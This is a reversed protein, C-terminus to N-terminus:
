RTTETVAEATTAKLSPLLPSRPFRTEFAGLRARAEAARGASVLSKITLAEREEGLVSEPFRNSHAKLTELAGHGDGRGLSARAQDLLAQQESLSAVDVRVAPPEELPKPAAPTSAAPARRVRVSKEVAPTELGLAANSGLLPGPRTTAPAAQEVVPVRSPEARDVYVVRTEPERRLTAVTTAGVAGGLAFAGFLWLKVPGTFGSARLPTAAAASPTSLSVALAGALAPISRELRALVRREASETSSVLLEQRLASLERHTFDIESTM